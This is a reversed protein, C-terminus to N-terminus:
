ASEAMAGTFQANYLEAYFGKKELLEKHTGQEIISGKDMVLILEADRITSLRHAIVFSTRDEMLAAMAKQILVETRTDVSSTAEDLILIAPDALIARAITILQKQGQSINSAEENLITDYGDPLTRIFHDAHAATAARVIEEDTAGEKGYAINERISGKFLWTDQLVMGFRSRLGSRPIDRIDRGDVKIFGGQIEYFRMLLNVLTTKGAGTPGVIAITHGKKVDLSLNTILPEEAKYSFAMNSIEVEGDDENPMRADKADPIEEEEDLVEFVREACAITSQIINAINATQQIPQNFSRSYQIFATVAGLSLRARTMWMGGLVSITVYALNGIFIMSPMMVGSIFQAKWSSDTLRANIADFDELAREERGFAKVVAHGSFMEEVHGSIKGLEKQQGAFYKQSRKAILSMALAYLPLTLLVVITLSGSITLMMVVYGLLQVISTIAQTLSQQLTNAITEVDNTVRSLIEGHTRGDFYKFPLKHLKEAVERRLDKVTNQSVTSMLWGSAFTFLASLGYLGLLVFLIRAIGPYDMRGNTREIAGVAEDLQEKTFSLADLSVSDAAITRRSEIFEKALRARETGDATEPLGAGAKELRAIATRAVFADKISNVAGGIIKPSMIAFVTSAIALVFVVVLKAGHPKLYLVLRRLTGKFNKAKQGPGMLLNANPGGPGPGMGRGGRLGPGILPGAGSGAQAGAPKGGKQLDSM